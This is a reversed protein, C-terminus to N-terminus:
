TIKRSHLEDCTLWRPRAFSPWYPCRARTDYEVCGNIARDCCSRVLIPTETGVFLEETITEPTVCCDMPNTVVTSARNNRRRPQREPGRSMRHPM